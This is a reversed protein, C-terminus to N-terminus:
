PTDEEVDQLARYYKEIWVRYRELFEEGAGQMVEDRERAPLQGWSRRSEQLDGGADTTGSAAGVDGTESPSEKGPEEKTSTSKKGAQEKPTPAKRKDSKSSKSSKKMAQTRAASASIAEDLKAVIAEQTQQTEPGPDFELELKKAADGMLRMVADMLDEDAGTVVKRILKERLEDPKPPPETPAQAHTASAWALIGLAGFLIGSPWRTFVPAVCHHPYPRLAWGSFNEGGGEGSPLPPNSPNASRFRQHSTKSM